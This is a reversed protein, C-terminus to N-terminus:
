WFRGENCGCNSSHYGIYWITINHECVNSNNHSFTCVNAGAFNNRDFSCAMTNASFVGIGDEARLIFLLIYIHLRIWIQEINQRFLLFKNNNKFCFIELQVYNYKIYCFTFCFIFKKVNGSMFFFIVKSGFFGAFISLGEILKIQSMYGTATALDEIYRIFCIM